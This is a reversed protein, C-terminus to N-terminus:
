AHHQPYGDEGPMGPWWPRRDEIPRSDSGCTVALVGVLLVLTIFALLEM